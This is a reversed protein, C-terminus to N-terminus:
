DVLNCLPPQANELPPHNKKPEGRFPGRRRSRPLPRRPHLTSGRRIPGSRTPLVAQLRTDSAGGAQAYAAGRLRDPSKGSSDVQTHILISSHVAIFVPFIRWNPDGGNPGGGKEFAYVRTERDPAGEGAFGGSSSRRRRSDILPVACLSKGRKM